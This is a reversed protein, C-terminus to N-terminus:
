DLKKQIEKLEKKMEKLEKKLEKMEKQYAETEFNLEDLDLQDMSQYLGKMKPTYVDINPLDPIRLNWVNGFNSQGETEGVEVKVLEKKMDRLITIEATEGVEKERIIEQVDGADKVEESDVAIIVDGAKLGAGAAPSEEEVETILVGEGDKVGFYEGLQDSLESLSVGIYPYTKDSFYFYRPSDENDDDDGTWAFNRFSSKKRGLEIEVDKKNGDEDIIVLKVKDGPNQERVFDVLDESTRVKKDGFSIIIDDEALGAKDAPSDDVVKNIIAGYDVPLKFAEILDDDLTQTYVGIWAVKYSQKTKAFGFSFLLCLVLGVLLFSKFYKRM